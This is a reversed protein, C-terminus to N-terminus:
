TTAGLAARGADTISMWTGDSVWAAIRCGPRLEHHSRRELSVLGAAALREATDARWDTHMGIKVPTSKQALADLMTRQAKTLKV